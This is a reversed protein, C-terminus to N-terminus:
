GQGILDRHSHHDLHGREEELDVGDGSRGVEQRDARVVQHLEEEGRVAVVLQDRAAEVREAGGGKARQAM